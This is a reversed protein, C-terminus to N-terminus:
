VYIEFLFKSSKPALFRYRSFLVPYYPLNQDAIQRLHAADDFFRTLRTYLYVLLLSSYQHEIDIKIQYSNTKNSKFM